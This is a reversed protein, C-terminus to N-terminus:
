TKIGDIGAAMHAAMVLYPNCASSGLRGEILTGAPSPTKVRFAANRDDHGWDIHSPTHCHFFRHYCNVTPAALASIARAHKLLGALWHKAVPTLKDATSADYMTAFKGDQSWLSHNFHCDNSATDLFPRTVFLAKFGRLSCIEKVGEKFIFADDAAKIGNQPMLTLEFQGPGAELHLTAIDVGAELMVADISYLLEEHKIFTQNGFIDSRFLPKLTGESVVKFGVECSSKLTYGLSQLEELGKRAMYRPCTKAPTGDPWYGECLFEGVKRKGFGAWSVNYFTDFYAKYTISHRGQAELAEITTEDYNNKPSFAKTASVSLLNLPLAFM